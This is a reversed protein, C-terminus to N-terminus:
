GAVEALAASVSSLDVVEVVYGDRLPEGSLYEINVKLLTAYETAKRSTSNIAYTVVNWSDATAVSLMKGHKDRLVHIFDSM